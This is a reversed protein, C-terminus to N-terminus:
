QLPDQQRDAFLSSSMDDDRSPSMDRCTYQSHTIAGDMTRHVEPARRTLTRCTARMGGAGREGQPGVAAREFPHAAPSHRRTMRRSRHLRHQGGHCALPCSQGTNGANALHGSRRCTPSMDGHRMDEPHM